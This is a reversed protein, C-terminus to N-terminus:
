NEFSVILLPDQINMGDGKLLPISSLTMPNNHDKVINRLQSFKLINPLLKHSINRMLDFSRQCGNLSIHFSKNIAGTKIILIVHSKKFFTLIIHTTKLM